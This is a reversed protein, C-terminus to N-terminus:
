GHRPPILGQERASRIFRAASVRSYGMADAVDQAPKYSGAAEADSYIKAALAIRDDGHGTGYRPVVPTVEDRKYAAALALRVVADVPIKRLLAATISGNSVEIRLSNPTPVGRQGDVDITVVCRPQSLEVRASLGSDAPPLVTVSEVVFDKPRAGM